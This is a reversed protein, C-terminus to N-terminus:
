MSSSSRRLMPTGPQRVSMVLRVGVFGDGRNEGGLRMIM